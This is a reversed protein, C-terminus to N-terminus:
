TRGVWGYVNQATPQRGALDSLVVVVLGALDELALQSAAPQAPPPQGYIYRRAPDVGDPRWCEELITRQVREAYMLMMFALTVVGHVTIPSM